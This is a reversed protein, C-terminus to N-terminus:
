YKIVKKVVLSPPLNNHAGGSGGGSVTTLDANYPQGVGPNVNMWYQNGGGTAGLNALHMQSSHQHPPIQGTTLTHDETGGTNGVANGLTATGAGGDGVTTRRRSDPVNFTTSGDGPGHTTGIQAFLAAYTTRSVASGDCPLYGNPVTGGGFDKMFGPKENSNLTRPM